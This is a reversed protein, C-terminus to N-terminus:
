WCKATLVSVGNFGGYIALAKVDEAGEIQLSALGQDEVAAFLSTVNATYKDFSGLTLPLQQLVQGTKDLVSLTVTVAEASRNALVIGTWWGRSVALHSLKRTNEDKVDAYLPISAGALDAFRYELYAASELDSDVKLWAKKFIAESVGFLAATIVLEVRAFPEVVM